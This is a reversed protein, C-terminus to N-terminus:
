GNIDLASGYNWGSKSTPGGRGRPLRAMEARFEERLFRARFELETIWRYLEGTRRRLEEPPQGPPAPVFHLDVVSQTALAVEFEHMSREIEDFYRTWTSLDATESM